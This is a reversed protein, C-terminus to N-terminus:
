KGNLNVYHLGYAPLHFRERPVPSDFWAFEFARLETRSGDPREIYSTSKTPIMAGLVQRVDSRTTGLKVGGSTIGEYQMPIWGTERPHFQITIQEFIIPLGDDTESKSDNISVKVELQGNKRENWEEIITGQQTLLVDLPLHNVNLPEHQLQRALIVSDQVPACEGVNESAFEKSRSKYLSWHDDVSERRLKFMYSSNEGVISLKDGSVCGDFSFYSTSSADPAVRRKSDPDIRFTKLVTPQFETRFRECFAVIESVKGNPSEDGIVSVPFIWACAVLVSFLTWLNRPM